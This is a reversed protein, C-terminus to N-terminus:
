RVGPEQGSGGLQIVELQSLEKAQCELDGVEIIARWLVKAKALSLVHCEKEHRGGGARQWFWWRSLGLIAM